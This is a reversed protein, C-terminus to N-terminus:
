YSIEDAVWRDEPQQASIHSQPEPLKGLVILHDRPRSIAVYLLYDERAIALKDLEVLIVIPSELGKFSYISSIQVQGLGPHREWTLVVNGIRDGEKFISTRASRPTLIVASSSPLREETFLKAFVRRLAEREGGLAVSVIEPEM